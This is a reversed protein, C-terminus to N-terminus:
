KKSDKQEIIKLLKELDTKSIQKEEVFNLLMNKVSGQYWKALFNENESKKYENENIIPSYQDLKGNQKEQKVCEKKVLRSLLTKITTKEWDNKQSLIEVIEPSTLKEKEWLVKMVELEADSIKKM